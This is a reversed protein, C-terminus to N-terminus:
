DKRLYTTVEIDSIKHGKDELHDRVVNNLELQTDLDISDKSTVILFSLEIKAM